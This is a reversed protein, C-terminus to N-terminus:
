KINASLDALAQNYGTEYRHDSMQANRMIIPFTKDNLTVGGDKTFEEPLEERQPMEIKLKEVADKVRQDAEARTTALLNKLMMEGIKGKLESKKLFDEIMEEMLQSQESLKSSLFASLIIRQENHEIHIIGEKVLTVPKCGCTQGSEHEPEYHLKLFEKEAKETFNNM